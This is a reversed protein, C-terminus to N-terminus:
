RRQTRDFSHQNNNEQTLFWYSLLQEEKTQYDPHKKNILRWFTENHKREINHATEHYIIYSILDEPLYKLLTNITLNNNKSHSAWKTKMKRFYIKNIKTNLENQATEAYRNVLHKLMKDTRTTTLNAENTQQLATNITTQKRKIWGSYKELVQEPTWGTKPLIILLTGTKYELRPHKVNRYEVTYETPNEPM